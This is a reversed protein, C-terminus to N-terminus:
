PKQPDFAHHLIQQRQAEAEAAAASAAQEARARREIADVDMGSLRGITKYIQRVEEANKAEAAREADVRKQNEINSARIEADSRDARWSNIWVIEPPRPPIRHEEFVVLSFVLLTTIGAAALFKWRHRGASRYVDVFDSVADTPNFREILSKRPRRPM